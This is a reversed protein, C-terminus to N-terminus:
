YKYTENKYPGEVTVNIYDAQEHTLETIVGNFGEVMYRAVEEDLKKPLLEVTIAAAQQDAPLNAFKKEF